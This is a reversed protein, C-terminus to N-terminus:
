YVIEINDIRMTSGVVGKFYDGYASSAFIIAIHTFDVTGDIPIFVEETWEGSKLVLNIEDGYTTTGAANGIIISNRAMSTANNNPHPEVGGYVNDLDKPRNGHFEFTGRGDWKILEIAASGWDTNADPTSYSIDFKVGKIEVDPAFPIGFWTLITPDTTGASVAKSADFWGTFLTGSALQGATKGTKLEAAYDGAEGSIGAVPVTNIVSVISNMNASSWPALIYDGNWSNLSSNVIQQQYNIKVYWSRRSSTPSQVLITAISSAREFSISELPQVLTAGESLTYSEVPLTLPFNGDNCNVTLIITSSETNIQTDLLSVGSPMDGLTLSTFDSSEVVEPVTLKATYTSISTGDHSRVNVSVTSDAAEFYLVGSNDITANKSITFDAGITLPFNYRSGLNITITKDVDSVVVAPDGFTTYNPEVSHITVGEIASASSHELDEPALKVGWQQEGQPTTVTFTKVTVIESQIKAASVSQSWGSKDVKWTFNAPSTVTAGQSVAIDCDFSASWNAFMPIIDGPLYYSKYYITIEKIDHDVVPPLESRTLNDTSSYHGTTFNTITFDEITYNKVEAYPEIAFKWKSAVRGAVDFVVYSVTDSWSTYNHSFMGEEMGITVNLESPEVAVEASIPFYSQAAVLSTDVMLSVVGGDIDVDFKPISIDASTSHASITRYNIETTPTVAETAIQLLGLSWEETKGSQAEVMVLYKTEADTYTFQSEGAVYPKYAGFSDSTVVAYGTIKSKPGVSLTPTITVPLERDFIVIDYAADGSSLMHSYITDAEVISINDFLMVDEDLHNEQPKITYRKSYGSESTVVFDVRSDITEFVIPSSKSIGQILENGLSTEVEAYISLPFEYKGYEIPIYVTDAGIEPTGLIISEPSHSTIEFSRISVDQSLDELKTCSAVICLLSLLITIQRIM